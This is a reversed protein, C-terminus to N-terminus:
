ACEYRVSTNKSIDLSVLIYKSDKTKYSIEIIMRRLDKSIEELPINDKHLM